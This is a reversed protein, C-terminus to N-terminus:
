KKTKKAPRKGFFPKRAPKKTEITVKKKPPVSKKIQTPFSSSPVYHNPEFDEVEVRDLKRKILKEIAHLQGAEDACVLSVALGSAGARGTRGIRHVYDEVSQPLDFNIVHSVAPVDIVRAAVDTAVLIRTKGEKFSHITRTRNRQKIDGHLVDVKEGAQGLKHALNGAERKTATFIIIQQLSSDKLLTNLLQYKHELRLVKHMFQSINEHKCVSSEISLELPNRLLKNSLKM